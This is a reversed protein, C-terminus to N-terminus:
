TTTQQRIFSQRTTKLYDLKYVRKVTQTHTHTHVRAHTHTHTHAHTNTNSTRCYHSFLGKTALIDTSESPM